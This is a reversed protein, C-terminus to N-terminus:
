VSREGNMGPKANKAKCKRVGVVAIVLFIVALVLVLVVPPLVFCVVIGGAFKLCFRPPEDTHPFCLEITM